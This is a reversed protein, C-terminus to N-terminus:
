LQMEDEAIQRKLKPQKSPHGALSYIPKGSEV